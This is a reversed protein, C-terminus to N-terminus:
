KLESVKDLYGKIGDKDMEDLFAKHAEIESADKIIKEIDKKVEDVLCNTLRTFEKTAEKILEELEKIKKKM